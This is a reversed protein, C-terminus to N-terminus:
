RGSLRGPLALRMGLNVLFWGVTRRFRGGPRSAPSALKQRPAAPAVRRGQLEAARSRASLEIMAPHVPHMEGEETKSSRV